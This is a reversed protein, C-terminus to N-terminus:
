ADDSVEQAEEIDPAIIKTLITDLNKYDWYPIEYLPINLLACQERKENDRRVTDLYNEEDNWGGTIGYHQKGNYEILYLLQNNNDFIAFDFIPRRGTSLVIKDHSYQARFQIKHEILWKNIYQEGHSKICGCSGSHGGRLNNANVIITNGCDCQCKYQVQNFRNNEVRELVTLKNFRQGILSKFSSESVRDRQLCGCSQTNGNKLNFGEVYVINGCNCQCKWGRNKILELATLRGFRQGALNTRSVLCGCSTTHGSRLNDTSVLVINGCDCRCNWRIKKKGSPEIRPEGENIVILKSFRQGTLDLKKM